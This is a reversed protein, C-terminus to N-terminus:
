PIEATPSIQSANDSVFGRGSVVAVSKIEVSVRDGQVQEVGIGKDYVTRLDTLRLHWTVQGTRSLAIVPDSWLGTARHLLYDREYLEYINGNKAAIRIVGELSKDNICVQLDEDSQNDVTIVFEYDSHDRLPNCKVSLSLYSSYSGDKRPDPTNRVHAAILFGAMALILIGVAVLWRIPPIKM